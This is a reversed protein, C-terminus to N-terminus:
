APSWLTLPALSRASHDHKQAYIQLSLVEYLFIFCNEWFSDFSMCQKRQKLTDVMSGAQVFIGKFSPSFRFCLNCLREGEPWM